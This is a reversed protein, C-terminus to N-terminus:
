ELFLHRQSQSGEASGGRREQLIKLESAVDLVCYACTSTLVTMRVVGDTELWGTVSGLVLLTLAVTNPVLCKTFVQAKARKQLTAALSSTALCVTLFLTTILM